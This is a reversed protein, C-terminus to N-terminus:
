SRRLEHMNTALKTLVGTPLPTASEIVHYNTLNGDGFVLTPVGDSDYTILVEGAGPTDGTDCLVGLPGGGDEQVHDIVAPYPHVHTDTAAAASNDIEINRRYQAGIIDGFGRNSSDRLRVLLSNFDVPEAQTLRWQLTDSPNTM